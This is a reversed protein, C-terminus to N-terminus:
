VLSAEFVIVITYDDDSTDDYTVEQKVTVPLIVGSQEPFPLVGLTSDLFVKHNEV